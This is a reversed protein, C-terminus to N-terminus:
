SSYNDRCRDYYYPFPPPDRGASKAEPIRPINRDATFNGAFRRKGYRSVSYHSLNRSRDDLSAPRWVKKVRKQGRADGCRVIPSLKAEAPVSPVRGCPWFVLRTSCSPWSEIFRGRVSSPRHNIKVTELIYVLIAVRNTGNRLTSVSIGVQSKADISRPRVIFQGRRAISRYQIIIFSSNNDNRGSQAASSSLKVLTM